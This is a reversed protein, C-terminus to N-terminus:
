PRVAMLRAKKSTYFIREPGCGNGMEWAGAIIHGTDDVQWYRGEIRIKVDGNNKMDFISFLDYLESKTPLRWDDFEGQNLQLLYQQADSESDFEDSKNKTWMAGNVTQIFYLDGSLSLLPKSNEAMASTTYFCIMNTALALQLLIFLSTKWRHISAM